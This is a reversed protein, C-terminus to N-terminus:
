ETLFLDLSEILVDDMYSIEEPIQVSQDLRSNLSGAFIGLLLAATLTATILVPKIARGFLNDFVSEKPRREIEEIRAMVRTSIFPNSELRKEENILNEALELLRFEEHCAPCEELHEAVQLRTSEPLNGELYKEFEKQYYKCNM